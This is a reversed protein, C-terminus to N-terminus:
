LAGGTGLLADRGTIPGGGAQTKGAAIGATGFAASWDETISSSSSM